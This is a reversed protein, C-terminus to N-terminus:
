SPSCLLAPCLCVSHRQHAHCCQVIRALGPWGNYAACCPLLWCLLWCLGKIGTELVKRVIDPLFVTSFYWCIAMNIVWQRFWHLINWYEAVTVCDFCSCNKERLWQNVCSFCSLCYWCILIYHLGNDLPTELRSWESKRKRKLRRWLNDLTFSGPHCIASQSETNEFEVYFRM